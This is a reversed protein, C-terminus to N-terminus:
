QMCAPAKVDGYTVFGYSLPPLILPATTPSMAPEFAPLSLDPGVSLIAGNLALTKSALGLATDGATLIYEGRVDGVSSGAIAVNVPAPTADFNAFILTVAGNAGGAARAACAAWARVRPAGASASVNVGLAVGAVLRQWLAHTFYDPNATFDVVVGNGDLVLDLLGYDGGALDQRIHTLYSRAALLSLQPIYWFGSAFRNSVNARGGAWYSATEGMILPLAPAAADRIARVQVEFFNLRAQYEDSMIFEATSTSNRSDQSYFHWTHADIQNTFGPQAFLDRNFGLIDNGYWDHCQGAVDGTISSDSGWIKVGPLLARVAAAAITYQSALQAASMPALSDGSCNFVNVENGLEIVPMRTGRAAARAVPALANVSDWAAPGSATQRGVAANLGYVLDLGTADAFDVLGDFISENLQLQTLGAPPPPPPAVGAFATVARDQLSGGFRVFAPALNRALRRLRDDTFPIATRQVGWLATFDFSFSAFRTPDTRGVPSFADVTLTTPSARTAAAGLTALTGTLAYLKM